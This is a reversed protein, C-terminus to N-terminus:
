QEAKTRLKEFVGELQKGMLKRGIARKTGGGFGSVQDTSTRNTYTVLTGEKVPFFGATAQEVNYSGSVYFQRQCVGFADGVPVTFAHTLIVVPTGHAEYSVWRFREEGPKADPYGNLVKYFGPALKRIHPNAASASELEDGGSRADGDGRDYPAIGSFGGKQYAVLRAVLLERVKAEVEEPKKLGALAQYEAASLNLDGGPKAKLYAKAEDSSLKVGALQEVSPAGEIYGHAKADPDVDMLMGKHVDQIFAKPPKTVLFAMSVSIERDTSPKADVRVFEGALVKKKADADFGLDRLVEDASPTQALAAPALMLALAAAGVWVSSGRFTQMACGKPNM